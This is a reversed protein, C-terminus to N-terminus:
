DHFIVGYLRVQRAAEDVVYYIAGNSSSITVADNVSLNASVQFFRMFAPYGQEDRYQVDQDNFAM